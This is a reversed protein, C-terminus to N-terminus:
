LRAVGLPAAMLLDDGLHPLLEIFGPDWMEVIWAVNHRHDHAVRHPAFPDAVYQEVARLFAPVVAARNARAAEITEVPMREATALERLIQTADM